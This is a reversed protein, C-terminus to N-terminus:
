AAKAHNKLWLKAALRARTPFCSGSIKNFAIATMIEKKVKEGEEQVPILWGTGAALRGLAVRKAVDRSFSDEPNYISVSFEVLKKNTKVLRTAVCAVPFRNKDRLYFLKQDPM